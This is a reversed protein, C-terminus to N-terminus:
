WARAVFNFPINDVWIIEKIHMHLISLNHSIVLKEFFFPKSVEKLILGMLAVHHFYTGFTNETGINGDQCHSM